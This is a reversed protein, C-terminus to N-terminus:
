PTWVPACRRVRTSYPRTCALASGRRRDGAGSDGAGARPRGEEGGVGAAVRLDGPLVEGVLQVQPDLGEAVLDRGLVHPVARHARGGAVADQGVVLPGLDGPADQVGAADGGFAVLPCAPPDRHAVGWVVDVDDGGQYARVAGPRAVALVADASLGFAALDLLLRMAVGSTSVPSATIGRRLWRAARARRSAASAVSWAFRVSSDSSSAAAAAWSIPTPSTSSARTWVEDASVFASSRCPARNKSRAVRECMRVSCASSRARRRAARSITEPPGARPRPPSASAAESSSATRAPCLGAARRLCVPSILSSPVALWMLSTRTQRNRRSPFRGAETSRGFGGGLRRSAGVVGAVAAVVRVTGGGVGPVARGRARQGWGCPLWGGGGTTPERPVM